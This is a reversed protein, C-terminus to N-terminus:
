YKYKYFTSTPQVYSNGKIIKCFCRNFEYKFFSIEKLLPDATYKNILERIESYTSAQLDITELQWCKILGSWRYVAIFGFYHGEVREYLEELTPLHKEVNLNKM